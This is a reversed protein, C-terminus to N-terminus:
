RAAAPADPARSGPRIRFAAGACSADCKVSCGLVKLVAGAYGADYKIPELRLTAAHVGPMRQLLTPQRELTPRAAADDSGYGGRQPEQALLRPALQSSFGRPFSPRRSQESDM